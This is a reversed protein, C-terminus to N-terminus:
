RRVITFSLTQPRSAGASDVATFVAQYHGPKLAKRRMRGTFKLKNLGAHASRTLTAIVITRTCRPKHSLARSQPRCGRGVRRGATSAQIVIKVTAPQDLVLSFVTGKPHRKAATQGTVPTSGRALAFVRNTERLMSITARTAAVAHFASTQTTSGAANSAAVSCAYSGPLSPTFTTSTAEAIAHGGMSWQYSMSRPFQYLFASLDNSAWLGHACALM